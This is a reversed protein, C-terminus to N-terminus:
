CTRHGRVISPGARSASSDRSAVQHPQKGLLDAPLLLVAPGPRGSGAAVFAMDVYDDVRDATNLRRVWKACPRFLADHDLEQFANRDVQSRDVEQVLAVIAVSAKLAEALPAVLLAAAPGNACRCHRDTRFHARLRGGNGRRRERSSLRSPSYRCGGGALMVASPLSQGFIVEVEHRVLADYWASLSAKTSGHNLSSM